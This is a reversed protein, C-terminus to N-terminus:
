RYKPNGIMESVTIVMCDKDTKAPIVYEWKEYKFFM